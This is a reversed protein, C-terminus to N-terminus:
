LGAAHGAYAIALTLLVTVVVGAGAGLGFWLATNPRSAELSKVQDTLIGVQKVNDDLQAQLIKNATDSINKQEAKDFDCQAKDLAAQHDVQVKIVQPQMQIQVILQATATPSLLVGTFPAIQGKKMPSIAAGVDVEGPVLAPSQPLPSTVTPIAQTVTPLPPLPINQAHVPIAVFLQLAVLLGAVFQKMMHDCYLLVPCTQVAGVSTCQVVTTYSM